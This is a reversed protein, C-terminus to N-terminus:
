GQVAVDGIPEIILFNSSCPYINGCRIFPKIPGHPRQAFKFSVGEVRHGRQKGDTATKYRSWGAGNWVRCGWHGSLAQVWCTLLSRYRMTVKLFFMWFVVKLYWTWAYVKRKVHPSTTTTPHHNTDPHYHSHPPAQPCHPYSTPLLHAITTLNSTWFRVLSGGRNNQLQSHYLYTSANVGQPQAVCIYTAYVTIQESLQHNCAWRWAM